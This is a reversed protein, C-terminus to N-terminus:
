KGLVLKLKSLLESLLPTQSCPFSHSSILDLTWASPRHEAQYLRKLRCREIDQKREPSRQRYEAQESNWFLERDM